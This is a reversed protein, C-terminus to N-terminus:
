IAYVFNLNGKYANEYDNKMAYAKGRRFYGKSTKEINLSKTAKEVAKSYNEEKLFVMAMNSNVDRELEKAKAKIENSIEGKALGKSAMNVMSEDTEKAILSRTFAFVRSYKTRAKALEGAKFLANGEEKLAVAQSLLGEIRKNFVEM